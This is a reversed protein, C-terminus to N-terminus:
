PITIVSGSEENEIEIHEIFEGDFVARGSCGMEIDLSLAPEWGPDRDITIDTTALERIVSIDVAEQTVSQTLRLLTEVLIDCGVRGQVNLKSTTAGESATIEEDQMWDSANIAAILGDRIDKVTNGAVAVYAVPVGEFTAGYSAGVVVSGVTFSIIKRKKLLDEYNFPGFMHRRISAIVDHALSGFARVQLTFVEQGALVVKESASGVDPL